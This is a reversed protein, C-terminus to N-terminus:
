ALGFSNGGFLKKISQQLLQDVNMTPSTLGGILNGAIAYPQGASTAVQSGLNAQIGQGGLGLSGLTNVSNLYRDYLAGTALSQATPSTGPNGFKTSLARMSADAAGTAEPSTYFSQPDNVYGVAKNLFPARQGSLQTNLDKYADSVEKSGFYGSLGGLAQGTLNLWDDTTAEGSM